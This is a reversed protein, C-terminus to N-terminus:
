IIHLYQLLGQDYFGEIIKLHESKRFVNMYFAYREFFGPYHRTDEWQEILRKDGVWFVKGTEQHTMIGPVMEEATMNHGYGSFVRRNLEDLDLPQTPFSGEHSLIYAYWYDQFAKFHNGLGLHAVCRVYHGYFRMIEPLGHERFCHSVFMVALYYEGSMVFATAMNIDLACAFLDLESVLILLKLTEGHIRIVALSEMIALYYNRAAIPKNSHLLVDGRTKVRVFAEVWDKPNTRLEM